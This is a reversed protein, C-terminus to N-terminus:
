SGKAPAAGARAAAPRLAAAADRPLPAALARQTPNADKLPALAIQHLAQSGLGSLELMHRRDFATALSPLLAAATFAATPGMADSASQNAYTNLDVIRSAPVPLVALVEDRLAPLRTGEGGMLMLDCSLGAIARGIQQVCERMETRIIRGIEGRNLDLKTAALAFGRAGAQLATTDFAAAVGELRGGGLEVLTGLTVCRNGFAGSAAGFENLAFLGRAAPWLVKRNLRRTFYPDEVILSTTSRGTIEDLFHRAPNLGAHSLQDEIAPLVLTWILSQLATDTGVPLRESVQVKPQWESASLPGEAAAYDVIMLSTGRAGFDVSAVRLTEAAAGVTDAGRYVRLLDAFRGQYKSTVENHLFGIQTGLDGGTGLVAEPQKPVGSAAPRDWGLSRWVLTLAGDVRVLLAQQEQASLSPPTLVVVQRLERVENEVASRGSRTAANLQVLAHLVLEAVFFSMMSARSFRPRIAPQQDTAHTRSPDLPAHGLIAGTESILALLEGSVMPGPGTASGDETSQRWLGPSAKDDLLFARLNNLGTVGDTGNRRLSLRRAEEGIRVLSPWQFADPRGSERSLGADGFPSANFEVATPFPGEHITNPESLDRLRLMEAYGATALQATADGTVDVLMATTEADGIDVVLDVTTKRIPYRRQITDAFRVEPM